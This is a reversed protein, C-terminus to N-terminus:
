IPIISIDDPIWGTDTVYHMLVTYSYRGSHGVADLADVTGTIRVKGDPLADYTVDEQHFQTSLNFKGKVLDQAAFIEDKHDSSGGAMIARVVLLGVGALVLLGALSLGIIVARSRRGAQIPDDFM